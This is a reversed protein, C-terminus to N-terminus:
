FVLGSAKQYISDNPPTVAPGGVAAVDEDEFNRVVNKLWNKTPYADDDLFAFIEGQAYTLALDRKEAPGRNGVSIITTKKFKEDTPEDTFILIEYHEYDLDLLYPISERIYHNIKRVPIIISVCPQKSM